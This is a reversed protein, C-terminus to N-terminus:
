REETTYTPSDTGGYFIDTDWEDPHEKAMREELVHKLQTMGDSVKGHENSWESKPVSNLLTVLSTVDRNVQKVIEGIEEWKEMETKDMRSM